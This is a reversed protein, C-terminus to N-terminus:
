SEDESGAAGEGLNGDEDDGLWADVFTRRHKREDEVPVVEGAPTAASPGPRSPDTTRYDTAEPVNVSDELFSEQERQRRRRMSLAVIAAIALPVIALGFWVDIGM